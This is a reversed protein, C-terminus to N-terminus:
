RGTMIDTEFFEYANRFLKGFNYQQIIVTDRTENIVAYYRDADYGPKIYQSSSKVNKSRKTVPMWYVDARQYQGQRSTLEVISHPPATTLISDIGTKGNLYGESNLNTFFGLYTRLREMNLPLSGIASPDAELRLAGVSDQWVTFSNLPFEPYSVSVRLIDEPLTNFVTRDRWNDIDTNYISSLAGEFGSIGVAYPKQADQLLMYTGSYNYAEPGVYFQRILKGKRDYIETKISKGAMSKIINNHASEPVPYRPEQKSLVRLLANVAGNLAKFEKDVTWGNAVRELLLSQGSTQVMYIRGIQSTDKITFGAEDVSFLPKNDKLVFFYAGGGLILLLLLYLITKQMATVEYHNTGAQSIKRNNKGAATKKKM